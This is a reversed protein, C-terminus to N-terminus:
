GRVLQYVLRTNDKTRGAKYGMVGSVKAKLAKYSAENDCKYFLSSPTSEKTDLECGAHTMGRLESLPNKKGQAQGPSAAFALLAAAVLVTRM